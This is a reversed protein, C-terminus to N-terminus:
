VIQQSNQEVSKHAVMALMIFFSHMSFTRPLARSAKRDQGGIGNSFFGLNYGIPTPSTSLLVSPFTITDIRRFSIMVDTPDSCTHVSCSDLYSSGNMSHIFHRFVLM